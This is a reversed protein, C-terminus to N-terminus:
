HNADALNLGGHRLPASLTVSRGCFCLILNSTVSVPWPIVGSAKPSIKSSYKEILSVPM